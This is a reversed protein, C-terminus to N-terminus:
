PPSSINNGGTPLHSGGSSLNNGGVPLNIGGISLNSGEVTLNCGGASLNNGGFPLNIGGTSLNNGGATLNSDRCSLIILGYLNNRASNLIDPDFNVPESLESFFSQQIGMLSIQLFDLTAKINDKLLQVPRFM